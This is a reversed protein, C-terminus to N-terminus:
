KYYIKAMEVIIKMSFKRDQKRNVPGTEQLFVRDQKGTQFEPRLNEQGTKRNSNEGWSFFGQGQEQECSASALIQHM